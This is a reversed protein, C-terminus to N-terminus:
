GKNEPKLDQSLLLHETDIWLQEWIFLGYMTPTLYLIHVLLRQNKVYKGSQQIFYM